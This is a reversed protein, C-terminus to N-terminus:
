NDLKLVHSLNLIINFCESTDGLIEDGSKRISYHRRTDGFMIYNKVEHMPDKHEFYKIQFDTFDSYPYKFSYTKVWQLEDCQQAKLFNVVKNYLLMPANEAEKKSSTEKDTVPETNVSTEKDVIPEMKISEEKDAVPEAKISVEKEIVPETKISVEKEIVPETKISAEKEMVPETKISAEKEMVPETKISAEKEMVPETKISMEQEIVPEAIVSAEEVDPEKESSIAKNSVSETEKSMEKGAVPEKQAPKEVRKAFIDEAGKTLEELLDVQSTIESWLLGNYKSLLEFAEQSILGGAKLYRKISEKMVM